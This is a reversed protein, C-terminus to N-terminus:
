ILALGNRAIADAGADNCESEGTPAYV